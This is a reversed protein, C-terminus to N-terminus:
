TMARTIITADIVSLATLTTSTSTGLFTTTGWTFYTVMYTVMNPTGYETGSSLNTLELVSIATFAPSATTGSKTDTVTNASMEICLVERVAMVAVKTTTAAIEEM